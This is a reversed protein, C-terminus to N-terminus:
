CACHWFYALIQFTTQFYSKIPWLLGCNEFINTNKKCDLINLLVNNGSKLIHFPKKKLYPNSDILKKSFEMAINTISKLILSTNTLILPFILYKRVSATTLLHKAFYREIILNRLIWLFVGTGIKHTLKAFNRLVGKKYFVEQRSSRYITNFFDKWM